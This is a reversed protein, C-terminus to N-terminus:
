GFPVREDAELPRPVDLLEDGETGVLGAISTTLPALGAWILLGWAPRFAAIVALAAVGIKLPVPVSSIFWAAQLLGLLALALLWLARRGPIM